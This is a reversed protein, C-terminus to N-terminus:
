RLFEWLLISTAHGVNINDGNSQPVRVRKIGPLNMVDESIGGEESGMILAFDKRGGFTRCDDGHEDAAILSGPNLKSLFSALKDGCDHVRVQHIWGLSSRASRRGRLAAFSQKNCVFNTVNLAYATRVIAGLNEPTSTGDFVICPLVPNSEIELWPSPERPYIVLAAIDHHRETLFNMLERDKVTFIQGIGYYEEIRVDEDHRKKFFGTYTWTHSRVEGLLEELEAIDYDSVVAKLILISLVMGPRNTGDGKFRSLLRLFVKRSSHIVPHHQFNQFIMHKLQSYAAQEPETERSDKMRFALTRADARDSIEPLDANVLM